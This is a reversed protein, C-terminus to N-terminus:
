SKREERKLVFEGMRCPSNTQEIQGHSKCPTKSYWRKQHIACSFDGPKVGILHPCREPGNFGISTLNDERLGKQPDKVIVVSYNTCCYGCRLCIM